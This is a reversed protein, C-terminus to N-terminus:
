RPIGERREKQNLCSGQGCSPPHGPRPWARPHRAPDPHRRGDRLDARRLPDRHGPRTGLWRRVARLLAPHGTRLRCGRHMRGVRGRSGACPADRAPARPRARHPALEHALTKAAQADDVDDRVRVTRTGWTTLGNPGGCDGREITFGHARVQAALADLLGGPAAGSLLEPCYDALTARPLPTGETQSVDFVSVLIFRVAARDEEDRGAEDGSAAASADRKRISPAWIKISHEGKRVRRGAANWERLSRVDTADPCQQLILMFNRFSYRRMWARRQMAAQWGEATMLRAVSEALQQHAARLREKREEPTLAKNQRM